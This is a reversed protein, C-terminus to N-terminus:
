GRDVQCPKLNTGVWGHTSSPLLWEGKPERLPTTGKSEVDFKLRKNAQKRPVHLRRRSPEAKSHMMGSGEGIM